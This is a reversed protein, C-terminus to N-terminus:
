AALLENALEFPRAAPRVGVTAAMVSLEAHLPYELPPEPEATLGHRPRAEDDVVPTAM